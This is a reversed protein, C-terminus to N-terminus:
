LQSTFITYIREKDGVVDEVTGNPYMRVISSTQTLLLADPTTADELIQNCPTKMDFSITHNLVVKGRFTNYFTKVFRNIIMKEHISNFQEALSDALVLHTSDQLPLDCRICRM